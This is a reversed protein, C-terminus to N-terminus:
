AMWHAVKTLSSSAKIYAQKWSETFALSIVFAVTYHRITTVENPMSPIPPDLNNGIYVPAKATRLRPGCSPQVACVVRKDDAGASPLRRERRRV